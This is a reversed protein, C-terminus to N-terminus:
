KRGLPDVPAFPAEGSTPSVDQLTLPLEVKVITGKPQLEEISLTAGLLEARERMGTIGYSASANVQDVRSEDSSLGIGDDKIEIVFYVDTESIIVEILAADAHREANAVAEQAIRWLEREKGIGLRTQTMVTLRTELGSRTEVRGLYSKLTEPLGADDTVETRLDSLAERLESLMSRADNGLSVLESKMAPDETAARLRDLEFAVYAMSQGLRDHLDRAIRIRERASGRTQLREFCRANDITLAAEDVLEQAAALEEASFATDHTREIAVFGITQSRVVLPTYIAHLSRLDFGNHENKMTTVSQNLSTAAHFANVPMNAKSLLTGVNTGYAASADWETNNNRALCILAVECPISGVIRDLASRVADRSDLKVSLNRSLRDLDSLLSNAHALERTRKEAVRSIAEARTLLTRSYSAVIAILFLEGSWTIIQGATATVHRFISVLSLVITEIGAVLLAAPAGFSLGAAVLPVFLCFMNPSLWDGTTIVAGLAMAIEIATQTVARRTNGRYDLPKFSRLIAYAWIAISALTLSLSSPLLITWGLGIAATIWRLLTVFRTFTDNQPM